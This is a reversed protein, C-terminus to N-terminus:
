QVTSNCGTPPNPSTPFTTVAVTSINSYASQSGNSDVTLVAYSYTTSNSLGSSPDLYSAPTAPLLGDVSTWTGAGAVCTGTCRFLYYGQITGSGGVPSPAVWVTKIGHPTQALVGGFVLLLVLVTFSIKGKMPLRRM